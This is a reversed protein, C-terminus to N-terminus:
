RVSEVVPTDSVRTPRSIGRGALERWLAERITELAKSAGEDFAPRLFPFAKMHVTGFELFLGYFFETTPGVAVAAGTESRSTMVAIHDAIDPAGPRRPALRSAREAIPEAAETLAERLMQKSIRTSLESLAKALEAGGEFRMSIKPM